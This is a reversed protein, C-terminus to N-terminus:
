NVAAVGLEPHNKLHATLVGHMGGEEIMTKVGDAVGGYRAEAKKSLNKVVGSLFDVQIEDGDAILTKIGACNTLCPLALGVVGQFARTGMSECLIRLGLAKMALLGNNHAKGALFNTGAVIFDGPQIKAALGPDVQAFLRPILEQPDTLRALVADFSIVGGDHPIDNGLVHARGITTWEM